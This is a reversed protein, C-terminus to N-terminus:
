QKNLYQILSSQGIGHSMPKQISNPKGFKKGHSLGGAHMQVLKLYFTSIVLAFYLNLFKFYCFNVFGIIIKLIIIEKFNLDYIWRRLYIYNM